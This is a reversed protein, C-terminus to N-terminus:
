ILRNRGRILMDMPVEAARGPHKYIFVNVIAIQLLPQMTINPRDARQGPINSHFYGNPCCFPSIIRYEEQENQKYKVIIHRLIVPYTVYQVAKTM